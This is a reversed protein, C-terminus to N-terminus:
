KDNTVREAMDSSATILHNVQVHSGTTHLAPLQLPMGVIYLPIHSKWVTIASSQAEKARGGNGKGKETKGIHFKLTYAGQPLSKDEQVSYLLSQCCVQYVQYVCLLSKSEEGM